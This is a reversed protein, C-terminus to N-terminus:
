PQNLLADNSHFRGITDFPYLRNVLRLGHLTAQGSRLRLVLYKFGFTDGSTYTQRGARALYQNVRGYSGEPRRDTEFYRQAYEVSSKPARRPM